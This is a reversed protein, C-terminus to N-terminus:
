LMSLQSNLNVVVVLCCVSRHVCKSCPRFSSATWTFRPALHGTSQGPSQADEKFVLGLDGRVSFVPM